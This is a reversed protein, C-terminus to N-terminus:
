QQETNEEEKQEALEAFSKIYDLRLNKFVKDGQKGKSESYKGVVIYTNNPFLVNSLLQEAVDEKLMMGLWDGQYKVPVSVGFKLPRSQIEQLTNVVFADYKHGKFKYEFRPNEPNLSQKMFALFEKEELENEFKLAPTREKTSLSNHYKTTWDDGLVKAINEDIVQPM